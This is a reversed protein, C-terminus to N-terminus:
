IGDENDDVYESRFSVPYNVASLDVTIAAIELQEIADFCDFYTQMNDKEFAPIAGLLFDFYTRPFLDPGNESPQNCTSWKAMLAASELAEDASSFKMVEAALSLDILIPTKCGEEFVCLIKRLVDAPNVNAALLLQCVNVQKSAPQSNSEGKKSSPEVYHIHVGFEQASDTENHNEQLVVKASEDIRIAQNTQQRDAHFQQFEEDTQIHILLVLYQIWPEIFHSLSPAKPNLRLVNIGAVLDYYFDYELSINGFVLKGRARRRHENNPLSLELALTDLFATNLEDEVGVLFPLKGSLLWTKRLSMWIELASQSKRSDITAAAINSLLYKNDQKLFKAVESRLAYQTLGDISYVPAFDRASPKDLYLSLVQKAYYPLTGKLFKTVQQTNITTQQRNKPHDIAEPTALDMKTDPMNTVLLSKQVSELCTFWGADYSGNYGLKPLFSYPSFPHLAHEIIPLSEQSYHQHCYDVLIKVVLSPERVSNNKIHRHQFSLHLYQRASVLSELFLYRDDGRRSRDGRRASNSQMLDIEIPNDQRPFDSQNLGLIAIVKFPISRMPLMSCFTINGSYFQSRVEPISLTNSLAEHLIPLEIQGKFGAVLTNKELSYIADLLLKQAFDDGENAQLHENMLNVLTQTWQTVNQSVKLRDTVRELSELAQLFKGLVVTAQGEIYTVPSLSDVLTEDAANIMGVLLRSVGWHWTHMDDSINDGIHQSLHQADKGWDIAADKIWTACIDIDQPTLKYRDALAPLSILDIIGSADFRTTPLSLLQMFAVIYAQSEIPQRDSISIPLNLASQASQTFVSRIYPSYAEISPCMVLIDKPQLGPIAAFKDLLVDKLVQLERVENHCAHVAISGDHENVRKETSGSLIDQQLHHLLSPTNNNNVQISDESVDFAAIEQHQMDALLNNLDRGQAGLNRLLPHVANEDLSLAVSQKRQLKAIAIDSQADGWYNVCPNLQFLHVNTHKSIEDFFTLYIPSISNISFIYIDKPLAATRDALAAIAEFQLSVPHAPMWEVLQLWFWQQWQEFLQYRPSSFDQSRNSEWQQLWDPRFVLYQEYLDALQRAFSFIRRQQDLKTSAQAWYRSLLPYFDAQKCEATQCLEYIKWALVERKYPSQQPINESGLVERCLDWVYRTPMPCDINMSIGLHDCLQMNLWHQMGPNPVLVKTPTLINRPRTKVVEALLIALDELRNSPYLYLLYGESILCTLM